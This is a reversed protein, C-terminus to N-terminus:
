LRQAYHHSKPRAPDLLPASVDLWTAFHATRRHRDFAARDRFCTVLHVVDDDETDVLVEFRTCDGNEFTLSDRANDFARATLRERTGPRAVLRALVTLSM